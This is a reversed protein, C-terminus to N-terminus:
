SSAVSPFAFSGQTCAGSDSTCCEKGAMQRHGLRRNGQLWPHLQGHIGPGEQNSDHGKGALYEIALTRDIAIKCVAQM